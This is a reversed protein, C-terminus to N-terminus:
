RCSRRRGVRGRPLRAYHLEGMVPVWPKGDLTLYRDTVGLTEGGPTTSSGATYDAAEAPPMPATADVRLPAAVTQAHAAGPVFSSFALGAIAVCRISM